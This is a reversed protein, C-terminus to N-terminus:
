APIHTAEAAMAGTSVATELEVTLTPSSSDTPAEDISLQGSSRHASYMAWWAKADNGSWASSSKCAALAMALARVSEPRGEPKKSLCSMIIEELDRDIPEGLRKSPLIPTKTAQQLCIDVVSNGTYLTQGTILYYATAGLAYIDVRHDVQDPTDIAEPSLYMPTGCIGKQKPANADITLSDSQKYIQLLGFDLVKAFDHQNARTTLMINEPKIDRHVIGMHHAEDLSGCVQMLIQIVRGPSQPGYLKVLQKLTIGDLFEMAYYFLGDPSRGYDYISITNPHQLQSTLQVEHQFLEIIRDDVINKNVVKVAAPRKLMKHRAKYVVGMAGEGLKEELTYNGVERSVSVAGSIQEQLYRTMHEDMRDLLPERLSVHSGLEEFQKDVAEAIDLLDFREDQKERELLRAIGKPIQNLSDPIWASAAIAGIASEYLGKERLEEDTLHHLLIGCTLEDPFGWQLTCAGAALAHDCTFRAREFLALEPSDLKRGEMFEFYIKQFRNTLAPLLFDQLMAGTYAIDSDVNMRKAVERAFLARELNICWFENLDIVRSKVSSVSNQVAATLLFLKARRIGLTTIAQVASNAKYRRGVSASNVHKLLECTLKSDVEISQAINKLDCNPDETRRIFETVVQPFVPLELEPPVISETTEPLFSSRVESWNIM